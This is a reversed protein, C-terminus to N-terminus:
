LSCLVSTQKCGTPVGLCCSVGDVLWSKSNHHEFCALWMVVHSSGMCGVHTHQCRYIDTYWSVRLSGGRKFVWAGPTFTLPAALKALGLSYAAAPSWVLSQQRALRLSSVSPNCCSVHTSRCCLAQQPCFVGDITVHQYLHQQM